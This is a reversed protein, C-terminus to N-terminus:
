VITRSALEYFVKACELSAVVYEDKLEPLNVRPPADRHTYGFNRWGFMNAFTDFYLEIIGYIPTLQVKFEQAVKGLNHEKPIKVEYHYLLARFSFEACAFCEDITTQRSIGVTQAFTWRERAKSMMSYASDEFDNGSFYVLGDVGIM